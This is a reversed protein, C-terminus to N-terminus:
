FDEGPVEAQAKGNLWLLSGTGRMAWVEPFAAAAPEGGRVLSEWRMQPEFSFAPPNVYIVLGQCGEYAKSAKKAALARMQQVMVDLDTFLMPEAKRPQRYEDQRKRGPIDAETTEFRFVDGSVLLEFDPMNLPPQERLLRVRSAGRREAFRAAVFAERFVKGPSLMALDGLRESLSEARARLEGPTGWEFCAANLAAVEDRM